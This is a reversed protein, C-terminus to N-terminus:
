RNQSIFREAEQTSAFGKIRVRYWIGRGPIEVEVLVAQRGAKLFRAVEAQAKPKSKWSSVQVSYGNGDQYVNEAIKKENVSTKETPTPTPVPRPKTEKPEAVKIEKQSTQSTPNNVKQNLVNGPNNKSFIESSETEPKDYNVPLHIEQTQNNSESKNVGSNDASLKRSPYPYNIPLEYDREIVVPNSKIEVKEIISIKELGLWRPIGYFKTYLFASGSIIIIVISLNLIFGFRKRKPQSLQELVEDDDELDEEVRDIAQASG